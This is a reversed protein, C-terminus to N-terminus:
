LSHFQARSLPPHKGDTATAFPLSDPNVGLGGARHGRTVSRGWPEVSGGPRGVEAWGGGLGGNRGPTAKEVLSSTAQPLNSACLTFTHTVNGSRTGLRLNVRDQFDGAKRLTRQLHTSPARADQLPAERYTMAQTHSHTPIPRVPSADASDVHTGVHWPEGCLGGGGGGLM